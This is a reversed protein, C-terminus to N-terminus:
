AEQSRTLWESILVGAFAMSVTILL